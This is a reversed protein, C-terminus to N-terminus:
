GDENKCDKEPESSLGNVIMQLQSQYNNKQIEIEKMVASEDKILFENELLENERRLEWNIVDKDKMPLKIEKELEWGNFFNDSEDKIPLENEMKVQSDTPEVKIPLKESKVELNLYSDDTEDKILLKNDSKMGWDTATEAFELKDFSAVEQNM